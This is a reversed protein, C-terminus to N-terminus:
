IENCFTLVFSKQASKLLTGELPPFLVRPLEKELYSRNKSSEVKLVKLSMMRGDTNLVLNITVEGHEPLSLARHLCEILRGEYSEDIVDEKAEKLTPVLLSSKAKEIDERKEIKAISEELQNLLSQPLSPERPKQPPASQKKSVPHPQAAARKPLGKKPARPPPTKKARPAPRPTKSTRPQPPTAPRLAPAAFPPPAIHVPSSKLVPNIKREKVVLRKKMVQQSSKTSYFFLLTGLHLSLIFFTLARQIPKKM